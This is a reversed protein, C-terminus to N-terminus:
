EMSCICTQTFHPQIVGCYILRGFDSGLTDLSAVAEDDCGFGLQDSCYNGLGRIGLTFALVEGAGTNCRGVLEGNIWIM